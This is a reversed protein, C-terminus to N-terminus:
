RDQWDSTATEEHCDEYEMKLKEWANNPIRLQAGDDLDLWHTSWCAAHDRHWHVYDGGHLYKLRRKKGTKDTYKRIM